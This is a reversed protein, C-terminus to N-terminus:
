WKMRIEINEKSFTKIEFQTYCTKTLMIKGSMNKVKKESSLVRKRSFLPIIVQILTDSNHIIYDDPVSNGYISVKSDKLHRGILQVTDFPQFLKDPFIDITAPMLDSVNCYIDETAVYDFPIVSNTEYDYREGYGFLRIGTSAEFTKPLFYLDALYIEEKRPFLQMCDDPNSTNSWEIKFKDSDIDIVNVEFHEPVLNSHGYGNKELNRRIDYVLNEKSVISDGFIEDDYQIILQGSHLYEISSTSSILLRFGIYDEKKTEIVSALRYVAGRQRNPTPLNNSYSYEIAIKNNTAPPIVLRRKKGFESELKQYIQKEVNKHRPHGGPPIHEIDKCYYLKLPTLDQLNRTEKKYNSRRLTFIATSGIPPISIIGHATTMSINGITGGEVLVEIINEEVTGNFITNVEVICSRFIPSSFLRDSALITGEIVINDIVKSTKTHKKNTRDSIAFDSNEVHRVCSTLTILGIFLIYKLTTEM